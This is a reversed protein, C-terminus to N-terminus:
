ELSGIQSPASCVFELSSAIFIRSLRLLNKKYHLRLQHCSLIIAYNKIVITYKKNKKSFKM